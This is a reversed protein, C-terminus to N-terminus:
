CVLLPRMFGSRKAVGAWSVPGFVLEHRRGCGREQSDSGGPRGCIMYVTIARNEPSSVMFLRLFGLAPDRDGALNLDRACQLSFVGLLLRVLRNDPHRPRHSSARSLDKCPASFPTGRDDCVLQHRPRCSPNSVGPDFRTRNCTGGDARHISVM